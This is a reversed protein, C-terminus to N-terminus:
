GAPAARGRAAARLYLRVAPLVAPLMMAAMMAIWAVVFAGASMGSRMADMGEMGGSGADPAMRASWWWGTAALTLLAVPVGVAVAAGERRVPRALRLAGLHM